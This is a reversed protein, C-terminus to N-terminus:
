LHPHSLDDSSDNIAPITYADLPFLGGGCSLWAMRVKKKKKAAAV